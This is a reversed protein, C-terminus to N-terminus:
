RRMFDGKGRCLRYLRFQLSKLPQLLDFLPLTLYYHHKDGLESATKNIVFGQVLYRLLLGLFAIGIVVYHLNLLGFLVATLFVGYFLLRSLTEFGLLYRQMGKFYGSTAMYSIKEEQFDKYREIAPMRVVANCDSEVRTNSATAIGNIFLDDEGRQLNLYTSYGKQAFFLARRYALNRGVGMYARGVLALGLYRLSHFLSDFAIYRHKWEKGREYGHYGLVIETQPTFNRAMLRLWQNSVPQCNAETFLLWPNKSAKVGLTLALKKRSIYRAGEPTFSHYLHPYKETLASLVETSEDTSGDNIVIVEFNPYDQELIAPLNRRLNESENRACIIVSLPQCETAFQIEGKRCAVNRRHIRNYIGLYYVLQIICLVGLSSLLIIEATDFTFLEM